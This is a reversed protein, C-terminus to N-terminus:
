RVAGSYRGVNLKYERCFDRHFDGGMLERAKRSKRTIELAEKSDKPLPCEPLRVDQLSQVPVGEKKWGELHAALDEKTTIHHDKRYKRVGETVGALTVLMALWPPINSASLRNELYASYNGKCYERYSKDERFVLSNNGWKSTSASINHPVTEPEVAFRECAHPTATNLAILEHQAELLSRACYLNLMSYNHRYQLFLPLKGAWLSINCHLGRVRDGWPTGDEAVAALNKGWRLDDPANHALKQLAETALVTPTCSFSPHPYAKRKGRADKGRGISAEYVKEDRDRELHFKEIHPSRALSAKVEKVTFPRSYQKSVAFFEYEIGAQPLIGYGELETEYESIRKLASERFQDLWLLSKRDDGIKELIEDLYAPKKEKAM